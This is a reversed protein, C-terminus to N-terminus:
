KTDVSEPRYKVLCRTGLLSRIDERANLSMRTHLYMETYTIEKVTTHPCLVRM